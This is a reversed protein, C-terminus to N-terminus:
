YKAALIVFFRWDDRPGAIAKATQFDASFYEKSGLRLGAGASAGDVSAPTGVAPSRTWVKGYDTFGYIQMQPIPTGRIDYRLEGLAEFCSDGLLQSPDYARGFFRGGYGCQEPALLPTAAYQGYATLYVSFAAFLPQTRAVSAEVKTFDVRGVTRSALPNSNGTSGLGNIGQSVTVIFQNIGLLRDAYDAAVKARVGRLRDNTFALGLVDSRNNSAFFLGSVTLNRERSRIIPYSLGIDGYPGLTRYDLTELQVTGPEGWTYSADVFWSLGESNLVQRFTGAIYQLERPPSVTAYSFTFAEHWGFLNNLTASGYYELPGRAKTGRNDFRGYADLWKRKVEIVLTSAAVNTKSPRLRTSFKLGPLDNALLLYRELTRINAPRDATIKAAYDTFFDRYRALKARPWVVKDVYGEVVRIHVVAGHPNLQQPPVIARSLVYGDAGYKATIRRALDYVAVLAITRGVLDRYLPRLQETTYVTSGVITIGRLVFTIKDAGSPAVTSPLTIMPGRPQAKPAPPEVFRERARGPQESPPIVQANAAIPLLVIALLVFFRGAASGM